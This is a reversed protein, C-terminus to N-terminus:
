PGPTRQLRLDAPAAVSGMAGARDRATLVAPTNAAAILAGAVPLYELHQVSARPASTALLSEIQDILRAHRSDLVGGALIVPAPVDVLGSRTLMVRAMAAVERAVRDVIARAIGDNAEDARFLAPVLDALEVEAIQGRHIALTVDTVSAVGFHSRIAKALVTSEGRGDEARVAAFLVERGISIGGGWDGSVLGLSLFGSREGSRSRGAANIGAGCVVAVGAEGGTGALLVAEIDNAVVLDAAPYVRALAAQFTPADEPLDLGALFTAVALPDSDSPLGAETLAKGVLDRVVGVAPDVGLKSPSSGPGHAVALVRGSLDALAVTTKSNGGDVAALLPTMLTGM